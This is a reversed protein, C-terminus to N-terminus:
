APSRGDAHSPGGAQTIETVFAGALAQIGAPGVRYSWQVTRPLPGASPTAPVIRVTQGDRGSLYTSGLGLPAQHLRAAVEFRVAGPLEPDATVVASFHSRGALGIGLVPSTTGSGLRNLEVLVPSLPWRPDGGAHSPGEQSQWMSTTGDIPIVAHRWRDGHWEFRVEAAGAQLIVPSRPKSKPSMTFSSRFRPPTPISPGPLQGAGGRGFGSNTRRRAGRCVVGM